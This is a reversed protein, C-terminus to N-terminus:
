ILDGFIYYPFHIFSVNYNIEFKSSHIEIKYYIQKTSRKTEQIEKHHHGIRDQAPLKRCLIAIAIAILKM